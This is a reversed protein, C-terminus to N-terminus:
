ERAYRERLAKKNIKGVSTKDIEKAIVVREPVAWKSIVGQEGFSRLHARVADETVVSEQDKRPVVIAIPREGWRPDPVGIVAVESVAPLQSVLDEIQLSSVWEGGTKIM